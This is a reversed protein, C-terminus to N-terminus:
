KEGGQKTQDDAAVPAPPRPSSAPSEEDSVMNASMVDDYDEVMDLEEEHDLSDAPRPPLLQDSRSNCAPKVNTEDVDDYETGSSHGCSGANEDESDDEPIQLPDVDEYDDMEYASSKRGPLVRGTLDGSIEVDRDSPRLRLMSLFRKRQWIVVAISVLVLGLGVTLGLTLALNGPQEETVYKDCTIKAPGDKCSSTLQLCYRLYRRQQCNVSIDIEFRNSGAESYVANGCNMERCAVHADQLTLKCVPEWRERYRVQLEGGCKETFQFEVGKSCAVSVVQMCNAQKSSCQWLRNEHGSCRFHHAPGQRPSTWSKIYTSCDLTHCLEVLANHPLQPEACVGVQQNLRVEGTCNGQLSLVPEGTCTIESKQDSMSTQGHVGDGFGWVDTLKNSCTPGWEWLRTDVATINTNGCQLSSCRRAVDQETGRKTLPNLLVGGKLVYVSGNCASSPNTLLVRSWDTCTLHGLPCKTVKAHTFDCTSIDDKCSVQLLGTASPDDDATFSVSKGCNVSRCITDLTQNDIGTQCLPRWEGLHFLGAQGACQDRHDCLAAQVSGACAVYAPNKCRSAEAMPVFNCQGLNEAGNPCHISGVTVSSEPGGYEDIVGGCGLNQCLIRSHVKKWTDRCVGGCQGGTCVEVKGWCREKKDNQLQVNMSGSCNVHDWPTTENTRNSFPTSTSNSRGAGERYSVGGCLLRGCVTAATENNWVDVATLFRSKGGVEVKVRGKCPLSGQLSWVEERTCIINVPNLAPQRDTKNWFCQSIRTTSKECHLSWKLAPLTGNVFLNDETVFSEGCNLHRCVVDSNNSRWDGTASWWAGEFKVELRGSCRSLGDELRVEGSDACAVRFTRACAIMNKGLCEWLSQEHGDCEVNSFVRDGAYEGPRAVLLEGCGLERCVVRGTRRQEQEDKGDGCVEHKVGNISIYVDGHCRSVRDESVLEVKVRDSCTILINKNKPEVRVSNGCMLRACIDGANYSKLRTASYQVPTWSSRTTNFQELTGNCVDTGGRLRVSVYESCIVSAEEKCTNQKSSVRNVCQWAFTEGGICNLAVYDPVSRSTQLPKPIKHHSGCKLERCVMDAKRADSYFVWDTNCVGFTSNLSAHFQVVGACTNHIGLNNLTLTIHGSCKVKVYNNPNCQTANWGPFTCQWLREEHGSCRVEDMWFVMSQNLPYDYNAYGSDLHSGCDLSKCVVEGNRNDWNHHCVLGWQNEHYVELRGKCPSDSGRLAIHEQASVQLFIFLFWM